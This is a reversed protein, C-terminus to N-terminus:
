KPNLSYTLFRLLDIGAVEGISVSHSPLLLAREGYFSVSYIELFDTWIVEFM